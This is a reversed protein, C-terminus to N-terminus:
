RIGAVLADNSWRWVVGAAAFRAATLTAVHWEAPVALEDDWGEFRRKREPVLAGLVPDREAREWWEDYSEQGAAFCSQKYRRHTAAAVDRLTPDTIAVHDANLFVGGPRLLRGVDGYVRALVPEDLWHLATASLIADFPGELQAAWGPDRLDADVFSIRVDGAFATRALLLLIPDLDVGVVDADPFRSHAREAISGTGCALDLIRRPRPAILEVYELMARFREERLPEHAEQQREWASRWVAADLEATPHATVSM